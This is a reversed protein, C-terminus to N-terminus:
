ERENDKMRKGGRKNEKVRKREGERINNTILNM